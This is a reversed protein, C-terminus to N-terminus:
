LKKLKLPKTTIFLNPPLSLIKKKEWKMDKAKSLRLLMVYAIWYRVINEISSTTNNASCFCSIKEHYFICVFIAIHLIIGLSSVFIVLM